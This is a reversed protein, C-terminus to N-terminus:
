VRGLFFEYDPHRNSVGKLNKHVHGTAYLAASEQLTRLREQLIKSCGFHIGDKLLSEPLKKADLWGEDKAKYSQMGLVPSIACFANDEVVDSKIRRLILHGLSHYTLFAAHLTGEPIRYIPYWAVAFWSAPHLDQLYMNELKTPDGYVQPNSTGAEILEKIKACLPKREHPRGHEFYEFIVEPDDLTDCCDKGGSSAMDVLRMYNAMSDLFDSVSMDVAPEPCSVTLFTNQATGEVEDMKSCFNGQNRSCGFLQVASLLPVFHSQFSAVKNEMGKTNQKIEAKVELGYSSSKEYWNWVDQLKVKPDKLKCYPISTPQNGISDWGDQSVFSPFIVPSVSYLLREFEAIPRGTAFQFNDSALQLINAAYLTQVAVESGIFRSNEAEQNNSASHGDAKEDLCSVHGDNGDGSEPIHKSISVVHDGEHVTVCDVDVPVERMDIDKETERRQCFRKDIPVWNGSAMGSTIWEKGNTNYPVRIEDCAEIKDENNLSAQSDEPLIDADSPLNMGDCLEIAHESSRPCPGHLSLKSSHPLFLEALKRDHENILDSVKPNDHDGKHGSTNSRHLMNRSIRFSEGQNLNTRAQPRCLHEKSTWFREAYSLNEDKFPQAVEINLMKGSPYGVTDNARSIAKYQRSKRLFSHQSVSVPSELLIHETSHMEHDIVQSKAMSQEISYRGICQPTLLQSMVSSNADSWPQHHHYSRGDAQRVEHNKKAKQWMHHANEKGPQKRRNTFGSRRLPDVLTQVMMRCDINQIPATASPDTLKSCWSGSHADETYVDRSAEEESVGIRIRSTLPCYCEHSCSNADIVEKNHEPIPKDYKVTVKDPISNSREPECSIGNSKGLIEASGTEGPGLVVFSHSVEHHCSLEDLSTTECNPAEELCGATTKCGPSSTNAESLSIPKTSHKHKRRSKPNGTDDVRECVSSKNKMVVIDSCEAHDIHLSGDDAMESFHTSGESKLIVESCGNNCKPTIKDHIPNEMGDTFTQHDVMRNCDPLSVTSPADNKHKKRLKHNKKKKKKNRKGPEAPTTNSILSTPKDFGSSTRSLEDVDSSSNQSSGLLTPNEVLTENTMNGMSKSTVAADPGKPISVKIELSQKLENQKLENQKSISINSELSQKIKNQKSASVHNGLSQKQEDKAFAVSHPLIFSGCLMWKGPAVLRVRHMGIQTVKEGLAINIREHFDFEPNEAKSFGYVHIKPLPCNDAKLKSGFIGRFVDLFEVADNPLNMVAQTVPYCRQGTFCHQVKRELKSLVVNRELYDVAIPNLDNAYVHKVKKAASIAIPGVGSFVDCVVDSSTFCDVLRIRESGLRSNWYVTALDVQLRIGNEIVTTVLSHNGALVELQMTRYENQIADTKNVVTQIKPKNKDLVVQAILNKYPLHEDRLNLHAIHGVTEFGTPVVMDEPLLAELLENMHWYDYFLTLRCQVLEAVSLKGMTACGQLVAEDSREVEGNRFGRWAFQEYRGREGVGGDGVVEVVAFDNKGVGRKVELGDEKGDKLKKKKKKPRSMKALNRFNLFGRYNFDKVLKERYLVPSLRHERMMTWDGDVRKALSRLRDGGDGESDRMLKKFEPDLDDGPVRAVNRVRPWNLLHGRLRRELGSCEAAPVRLAALDFSRTFSERDICGNLPPPPPPTPHARRLTPGHRPISETDLSVIKTQSITAFFFSPTRFSRNRRSPISSIPLPHHSRLALYCSM